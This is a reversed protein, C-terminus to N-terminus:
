SDTHWLLALAHLWSRGEGSVYWGAVVCGLSAVKAEWECGVVVAEVLSDIIEKGATRKEAGLGSLRRWM